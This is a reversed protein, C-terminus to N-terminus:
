GNGIKVSVLWLSSVVAFFFSAFYSSFNRERERASLTECRRAVNEEEEKRAIALSGARIWSARMITTNKKKQPKQQIAKRKERRAARKKRKRRDGGHDGGGAVVVVAVVIVVVM